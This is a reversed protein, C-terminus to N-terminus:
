PQPVRLPMDYVLLMSAKVWYHSRMEMATEIVRVKDVGTEALKRRLYWEFYDKSAKQLHLMLMMM